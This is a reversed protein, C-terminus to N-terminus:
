KRKGNVFTVEEFTGDRHRVVWQGHRKGEVVPGEEVTGSAHRVVWRGHREGDVYLGEGVSGKANRQVWRGHRKGEVVPGEEVTGSAHRVVWQGHAKGDVFTGEHVEGNARRLVGRGHLKGDVYPMEGVDGDADRAVWRGHRKGDVYAGEHVEGEAYRVVWRGHMKGNSLTGTGTHTEKGGSSWKLYGQGDAVGGSCTGSWTVTQRPVYHDDWVRCGPEHAVDKWCPTGKAAGACEPKLAVAPAAGKVGLADSLADRTQEPLGQDKKLLDSLRGREAAALGGLSIEAKDKNSLDAASLGSVMRGLLKQLEPAVRAINERDEMLKVLRYVHLGQIVLEAMAPVLEGTGRTPASPSAAAQSTGEPARTSETVERTERRRKAADRMAQLATANLVEATPLGAERLFAKYARASRRGWVGDSPGPTYGLGALLEQAERIAEKSPPSAPPPPDAAITAKAPAEVAPADRPAEPGGTGAKVPRWATARAQATAVQEATMKAALADREKLAAAEGRSAALNLWKHAEVYDQPAGIGQVFLRGLALMARRDGSAAASRWETLAVDPRGEDWAQQGAEYDARAFPASVVAATLLLALVHKSGYM